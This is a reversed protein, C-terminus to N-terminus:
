VLLRVVARSESGALVLVRGVTSVHVGEEGLFRAPTLRRGHTTEDNGASM